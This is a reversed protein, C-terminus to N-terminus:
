LAQKITEAIQNAEGDEYEGQIPGPLVGDDTYRPIVHVHTHFVEQGAAAGCNMGINVGDCGLSTTQANAIKQAVNMIHAFLEPDTERADASAEKPIVLTHGPQIPQIDLFAIVKEDEYVKTCPIEGDIIKSFITETSM